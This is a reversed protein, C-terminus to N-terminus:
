FVQFNDLGFIQCLQKWEDDSHMWGNIWCTTPDQGSQVVKDYHRACKTNYSRYCANTTLRVYDEVKTTSVARFEFNQQVTFIYTYLIHLCKQCILFRLTSRTFKIFDSVTLYAMLEGMKDTGVDKFGKKAMPFNERM